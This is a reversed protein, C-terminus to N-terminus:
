EYKEFEAQFIQEQVEAAELINMMDKRRDDHSKFVVLLVGIHRQTPVKFQDVYSQKILTPGDDKWIGPHELLSISGTKTSRRSCLSDEAMKNSNNLNTRDMAKMPHRYGRIWLCACPETIRFDMAQQMSWGFQDMMAETAAARWKGRIKSYDWKRQKLSHYNNKSNPSSLKQGPFWLSLVPDDM